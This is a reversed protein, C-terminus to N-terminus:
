VEDDDALACIIDTRLSQVEALVRQLEDARRSDDLYAEIADRLTDALTQRRQAAAARIAGNLHDSLKLSVTATM